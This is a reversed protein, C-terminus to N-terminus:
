KLEGIGFGIDCGDARLGAEVTRAIEASLSKERRAIRRAQESAPLHAITLKYAAMSREFTETTTM